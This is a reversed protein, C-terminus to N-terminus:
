RGQAAANRREVWEVVEGLGSVVEVGRLDEDDEKTEGEGAPGLRRLLLASLGAARAGNYDADLEDGVHVAQSPPVSARECARLFIDRAPKEIGETESLLIPSLYPTAGLSTLAQHMRADSNSVIGTRIDVARLHQLAPLADDFLKYGERSSFRLLLRRVIEALSRDVAAPDAGAGVATRRIVEGWWGESGHQHSYAPKEAQVQKLALKFARKLAVPDLTGLYPEFSQSYQVYVPLRPTLLTHLADFLVFRIPNLASSM